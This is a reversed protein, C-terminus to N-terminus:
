FVWYLDLDPVVSKEPLMFNVGGLNFNGYGLGLRLNFSKWSFVTSATLSFGAKINADTRGDGFVEVTTFEDPHLVMSGSGSVRQMTMVRASIVVATVRTARWEFASTWQANEVAGQAAGSFAERELSGDLHVATYAFSGSLTSREGFRYSAFLELPTATIVAAGAADDLSELNKTDFRFGGLLLAMSYPDDRWFCWKLQINPVRFLWPWFYTGVTLSDYIGYQHQWLGLRVDGQRLTYATGETIRQEPTHWADARPASLVGAV